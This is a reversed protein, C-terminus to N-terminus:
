LPLQHYPTNCLSRGLGKRAANLAMKPSCGQIGQVDYDGGSMLAILIMGQQDLNCTQAIAASRYVRVHTQSKPGSGKGKEYLTRLLLTCGFMLTDGDDSWVADVIGEQQLRACEAEAEGPARHVPVKLHGLLKVTLDIKRFDPRTGGRKGRKSPRRQGDFVIVLEINLKLLKLVRHLVAKEIPHAAPEIAQIQAAQQETLNNFRWGAEDVAIRFPRGHKEYFETALQALPIIAEDGVM